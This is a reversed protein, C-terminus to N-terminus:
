ETPEVPDAVISPDRRVAKMLNESAAIFLYSEVKELARAASSIEGIMRDVKEATARGVGKLGEVQLSVEHLADKTPLRELANEIRSVRGELEEMREEATPPRRGSRRGTLLLALVLAVIGGAFAAALQDM